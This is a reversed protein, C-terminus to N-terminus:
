IKTFRPVLRGELEVNELWVDVPRSFTIRKGYQAQYIVCPENNSEQLVIDKVKYVMDAAKYHRYLAGVAVKQKANNLLELLQDQSLHMHGIYLSISVGM